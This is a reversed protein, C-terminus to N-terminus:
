PVLYNDYIEAFDVSFHAQVAGRALPWQMITHLTLGHEIAKSRLEANEQDDNYYCEQIFIPKASDGAAALEAAVADMLTNAGTYMDFAYAPPRAGTEDYIAIAKTLRGPAAAFSAGYTFSTGYVFTFDQWIRKVYAPNQGGELGGLEVAIDIWLDVGTDQLAELALATVSYVLNWNAQYIGEDWATWGGPDAKGQGAFRLQVENYGQCAIDALVNKLNAQHQPVLAGNNNHVVHGFVGNVGTGPPLTDYWIMLAIKRQGAQVMQKLQARVTTPGMHYTGIVPKLVGPTFWTEDTPSNLYAGASWLM